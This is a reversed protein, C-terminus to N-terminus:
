SKESGRIYDNWKFSESILPVFIYEGGGIEVKDSTLLFRATLVLENNIYVLGKGDGPQIYYINKKPDFTLWAVCEDIVQFDKGINIASKESKGISNRGPLIEFSKGFYVGSVGVLWGVVAKLGNLILKKETDKSTKQTKVLPRGCRVCFRAAYINKEKCNVCIVHEEQLHKDEAHNDQVKELLVTSNNDDLTKPETKSVEKSWQISGCFPCNTYKDRDFLHGKLCKKLNM